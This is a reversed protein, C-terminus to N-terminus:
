NSTRCDVYSDSSLELKQIGSSNEQEVKNAYMLYARSYGIGVDIVSYPLRFSKDNKNTRIVLQINQGSSGYSDFAEMYPFPLGFEAISFVEGASLHLINQVKAQSLYKTLGKKLGENLTADNSISEMTRCPGSVSYDMYIVAGLPAALAAIVLYKNMITGNSTKITTAIVMDPGFVALFCRFTIIVVRVVRWNGVMGYLQSYRFWQLDM